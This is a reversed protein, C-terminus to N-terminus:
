FGHVNLDAQNESVLQGPEVSNWFLIYWSYLISFPKSILASFNFPFITVNRKYLIM